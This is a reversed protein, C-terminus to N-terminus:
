EPAIRLLAAPRNFARGHSSGRDRETVEPDAGFDALHVDGIDLLSRARLWVALLGAVAILAAFRHVRLRRCRRGLRDDRWQM